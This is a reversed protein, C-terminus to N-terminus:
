RGNVLTFILGYLCIGGILGGLVAQIFGLVVAMGGEVSTGWKSYVKRNKVGLTGFIVLFISALFGIGLGVLKGGPGDNGAPLGATGKLLFAVGITLLFCIPVALAALIWPGDGEEARARRGRRRPREDEEEEEDEYEDEFEEDELDDDDPVRVKEGCKPCRVSSKGEPVKLRVDCDPCRVKTVSM